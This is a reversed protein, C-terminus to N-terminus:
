EIDMIRAFGTMKLVEMVGEQVNILRLFGAKLMKKHATLLVRLGASSIYELKVADFIIDADNYQQRLEMIAAETEAANNSDIKGELTITLCKTEENMTHNLNM